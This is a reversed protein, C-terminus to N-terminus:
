NVIHPFVFCLSVGSQVLSQVVVPADCLIQRQLIRVFTQLIIVCKKIRESIVTSYLRSLWSTKTEKQKQEEIRMDIYVCRSSASSFDIKDVYNYNPTIGTHMPKYVLSLIYVIVYHLGECNKM